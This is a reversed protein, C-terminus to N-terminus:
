RKIKKMRLTEKQEQSTVANIKETLIKQENSLAIVEQHTTVITTKNKEEYGLVEASVDICAKRMENWRDQENEYM